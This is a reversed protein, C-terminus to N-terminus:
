SADDETDAGDEIVELDDSGFGNQGEDEWDFTLVSHNSAKEESNPFVTTYIVVNPYVKQLQPKM